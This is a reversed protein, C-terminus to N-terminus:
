KKEGRALYFLQQSIRDRHEKREIEESDYRNIFSSLSARQKSIDIEHLSFNKTIDNNISSIEKKILDISEKNKQILRKNSNVESRLSKNSNLVKIDMNYKLEKIEQAHVIDKKKSEDRYKEHEYFWIVGNILLGGVLIFLGIIGKLGGTLSFIKALKDKM